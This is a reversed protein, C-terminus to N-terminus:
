SCIISSLQIVSTLGSRDHCSLVGVFIKVTGAAPVMGFEAFWEDWFSINPQVGDVIKILGVKDKSFMVGPSLPGSVFVWTSCNSDGGNLFVVAEGTSPKFALHDIFVNVPPIMPPPNDYIEPSNNTLLNMLIKMYFDFGSIYKTEGFINTYPMNAALAIWANRNTQTITPWGHASKTFYSRAHSQSITTKGSPNPKVMMVFGSKQSQIVTGGIKGRANVIGMGSLQILMNVSFFEKM